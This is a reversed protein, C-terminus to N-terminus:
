FSEISRLKDYGITYDAWREGNENLITYAVKRILHAVNKGTIEFRVSEARKVVNANKMMGAPINLISYNDNGGANAIMVLLCGAVVLIKRM